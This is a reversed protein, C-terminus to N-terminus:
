ARVDERDHSVARAVADLLRRTTNPLSFHEVRKRGAATMRDHLARDTRVRHVATAVVVPRKQDLLLGAGGVTEPVAAAALAVVPVDHHMAELVPVNFGEHESLCVF